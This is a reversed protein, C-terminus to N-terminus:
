DDEAVRRKYRYGNADAEFFNRASKHFNFIVKKLQEEFQELVPTDEKIRKETMIALKDNSNVERLNEPQLGSFGIKWDDQKKVRYKFFYVMGKKKDHTAAQRAVFVISDIGAYNKDAVLYSRALALQTKYFAPFKEIRNIKELKSYLIGRTRDQAALMLLISDPVPKNNRLLLVATNMVIDGQKLRLLKDFFKPVTATSDYFPMLLVAYNDLTGNRSDTSYNRIPIVENDDDDDDKKSNALKKEEKGQQKKLALKADFYIKNFFTAYQLAKVYGSDVLKVLLSIVPEKYDELSTLQLLEPYLSASLQLSDELNEFLNDYDFSKKM